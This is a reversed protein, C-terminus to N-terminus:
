PAEVSPLRAVFCDANHFDPAGEGHALAWYSKSGDTAEIVASLGVELEGRLARDDGYDLMSTQTLMHPGYDVQIPGIPELFSPAMGDRYSQFRYAAWARSPALNIEHYAQGGAPRIFAEFCSHRWLDDRQVQDGPEPIVLHDLNAHLVFRLGIMFNARFLQCEIALPRPFTSRPHPILHLSEM